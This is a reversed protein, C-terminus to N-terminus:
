SQDSLRAVAATRGEVRGRPLLHGPRWGKRKHVLSESRGIPCEPTRSCTTPCGRFQDPWGHLGRGRVSLPGSHHEDTTRSMMTDGPLDPEHQIAPRQGMALLAHKAGGYM